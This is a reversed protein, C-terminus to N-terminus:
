LDRRIYRCGRLLCKKPPVTAGGWGLAIIVSIILGQGFIEAAEKKQMAGIRRSYVIGTGVSIINSFFIVSATIPAITNIAAVGSEGIFYGAIISDCLLLIYAVGKTLTGSVLTSQFKYELFKRKGM